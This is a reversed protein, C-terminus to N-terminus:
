SHYSIIHFVFYHLTSIANILEALIYAGKTTRRVVVILDLYKSKAKRNLENEIQSNQVLVLFDLAFNYDWITEQYRKEFEQTFNFRAQLVRKHIRQLDELHRQLAQARTVLLDFQLLKTSYTPSIFTQEILDFPLLSDVDHIM